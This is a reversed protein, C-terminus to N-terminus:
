AQTDYRLPWTDESPLKSEREQIDNIPTRHNADCQCNTTTSQASLTLEEGCSYELIM